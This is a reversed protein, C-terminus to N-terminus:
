RSCGDASFRWIKSDHDDTGLPAPLFALFREDPLSFLTANAVLAPFTIEIGGDTGFTTDIEGPAGRVFLPLPAIALEEDNSPNAELALNAVDGQPFSSAITLELEGVTAPSELRVPKAAIGEPLGRVTLIVAGNFSGKRAITVKISQTTGHTLVNRELPAIDVLASGRGIVVGGDDKTANEPADDPSAASSDDGDGGFTSCAVAFGVIPAWAWAAGMRRSMNARM